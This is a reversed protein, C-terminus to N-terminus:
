RYLRPMNRQLAALDDRCFWDPNHTRIYDVKQLLDSRGTINVQEMVCEQKDCHAVDIPGKCRPDGITLFDPNEIDPLGYFHGLEHLLIGSFAEDWRAGYRRRMQATSQILGRVNPEGTQTLDPLITGGNSIKMHTEGYVFNTSEAFLDTDLVALEYHPTTRQYPEADFLRWFTGTKAQGRKPDLAQRVYWAMSEYGRRFGASPQLIWPGSGLHKRPITVGGKRELLEFATEVIDVLHESSHEYTVFFPLAAM